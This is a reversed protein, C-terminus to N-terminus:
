TNQVKPTFFTIGTPTTVYFQNDTGYFVGIVNWPKGSKYVIEDKEVKDFNKGTLTLKHVSGENYSGFYLDNHVFVNQVPTITPTYSIIPKGIDPKALTIGPPAWGYNVGKEVLIIKDNRDPGTESIYLRGSKPHIALGFINRHGYSYVPSNPFPNDKPFTGDPNIRLIKGALSKTDQSLEPKNIHGTGIFLTGDPAFAMIGGNDFEGAPIDDVIVQEKGGKKNVRVVRNILMDRKKYLHYCYIDGNKEFDPDLAIGMLGAEVYEFTPPVPLTTILRYKANDIQWLQGSNKETVYVEGKKSFALTVPFGYTKTQEPLLPNANTSM